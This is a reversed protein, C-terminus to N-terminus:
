PCVLWNHVRRAAGPSLCRRSSLAQDAHAASLPQPRSGPPLEGTGLRASAAPSVPPTVKREMGGGMPEVPSLAAGDIARHLSSLSFSRVSRAEEPRRLPEAVGQLGLDEMGEASMHSRALAPVPMVRTSSTKPKTKSGSASPGARPHQADSLDLRVIGGRAIFHGLNWLEVNADTGAGLAIVITSIIEKVAAAALDRTLGDSFHSAIRTFNLTQPRSHSEASGTRSAAHGFAKLGTRQLFVGDITALLRTSRRLSRVDVDPLIRLVCLHPITVGQGQRLTSTVWACVSAWAEEYPLMHRVRCRRRRARCLELLETTTYTTM